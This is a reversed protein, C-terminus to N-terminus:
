KFNLKIHAVDNPWEEEYTYVELTWKNISDIWLIAGIDQQDFNVKFLASLKDKNLTVESTNVIDVFFGYGTFNIKGINVKNFFYESCKVSNKTFVGKLIIKVIEEKM